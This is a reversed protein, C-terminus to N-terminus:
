RTLPEIDPDAEGAVGKKRNRRLLEAVKSRSVTPNEKGALTGEFREFLVDGATEVCALDNSSMIEGRCKQNIRRIEGAVSDTNDPRFVTSFRIEEHVDPHRDALGQGFGKFPQRSKKRARLQNYASKIGM